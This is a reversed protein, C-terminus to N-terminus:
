GRNLRTLLLNCVQLLLPSHDRAYHAWLPKTKVWNTRIYAKDKDCKCAAIAQELSNDCGPQTRRNKLASLMHRRCEVLTDGALRRNITREYHVRCLLHDVEIEGIIHGPFVLRVARQEAASDDTIFYRPIWGSWGKIKRLALVIIDGDGKETLFHALPLWSGSSDRVMVTYLLWKLHNTDHTADMLTLKGHKKLIPM